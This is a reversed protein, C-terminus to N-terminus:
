GQRRRALREVFQRHESSGIGQHLTALVQSLDENLFASVNLWLGPFVTSRLVGDEPVPVVRYKHRVLRHWRLEQEEALFTLYEKVGAKQYLELKQHLDCSTRSLCIEAALEPAGSGYRGLVRSQGGFEPLLYLTADPQPADGLMMWTANCAIQCGPTAAAYTGTWTVMHGDHKGHDLGLPSPMYVIGGILEALKLQTM